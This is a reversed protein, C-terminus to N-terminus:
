LYCILNLLILLKYLQMQLLKISLLKIKLSDPIEWKIKLKKLESKDIHIITIFFM